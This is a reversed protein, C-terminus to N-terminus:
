ATAAGRMAAASGARVREAILMAFPASRRPDSHELRSRGPVTPDDLIQRCVRELEDNDLDEVIQRAEILEREAQDAYRQQEDARRQTEAAAAGGPDPHPVGIRGAVTGESTARAQADDDADPWDERIAKSM